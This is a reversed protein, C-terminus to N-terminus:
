IENSGFMGQYIDNFLENNIQTLSQMEPFNSLNYDTFALQMVNETVDFHIM